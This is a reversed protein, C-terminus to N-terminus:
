RVAEKAQEREDFSLPTGDEDVPTAAGATAHDIRRARAAARDQAEEAVGTGKNISSNKRSVAM